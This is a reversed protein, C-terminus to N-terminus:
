RTVESEGLESLKYHYIGFIKGNTDIYRRWYLFEWDNESVDIKYGNFALLYYHVGDKARPDHCLSMGDAILELIKRQLKTIKKMSM